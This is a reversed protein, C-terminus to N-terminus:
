FARSIKKLLKLVESFLEKKYVKQEIFTKLLVHLVTEGSCNSLALTSNDIKELLQKFIEIAKETEMMSLSHMCYYHLITNGLKDQLEPNAGKELLCLALEFQKTKIARHLLTETINGTHYLRNVNFLPHHILHKIEELKKENWQVDAKISYFLEEERQRIAMAEWSIPHENSSAFGFFSSFFLLM